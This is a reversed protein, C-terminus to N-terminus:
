RMMHGREMGDTVDTAITENGKGNRPKNGKWLLSLYDVM